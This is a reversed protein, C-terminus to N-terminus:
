LVTATDDLNMTHTHLELGSRNSGPAVSAAGIDDGPVTSQGPGV